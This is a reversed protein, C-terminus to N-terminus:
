LVQSIFEDEGLALLFELSRWVTDFHHMLYENDPQVFEYQYNGACISQAFRM